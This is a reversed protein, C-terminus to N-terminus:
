TDQAMLFEFIQDMEDFEDGLADRLGMADEWPDQVSQEPASNPPSFSSNGSAQIAPSLDPAMSGLLHQQGAVEECAERPEEGLDHEQGQM